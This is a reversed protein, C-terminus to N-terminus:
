NTMGAPKYIHERIYSYYDQGSAKEIVAGLLRYGYNSYEAKSGPEFKLTDVPSTPM